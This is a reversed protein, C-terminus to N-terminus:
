THHCLRSSTGQNLFRLHLVASIMVERRRPNCSSSVDSEAVSALIVSNRDGIVLHLHQTYLFLFLISCNPLSGGKVLFPLYPLHYM